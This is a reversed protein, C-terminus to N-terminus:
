RWGIPEGFCPPLQQEAIPGSLLQPRGSGSVVLTTPSEAGIPPGPVGGDLYFSGKPVWSEDAGSLVAADLTKAAVEVERWSRGLAACPGVVIGPAVAVSVTSRNIVVFDASPACGAVFSMLAATMFLWAVSRLPRSEACRGPAFKPIM